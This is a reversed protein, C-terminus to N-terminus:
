GLSKGYIRYRKVPAGAAKTALSIMPRNTELVWSFEIWDIDYNNMEDLFDSVLLALIGIAILPNRHKKRIGMLPIRISGFSERWLRFALKLWNFPLLRGGFERSLSNIDPMALMLAAPEGDVTVIRGYSARYFPKLEKILATIEAESFPVFGWNESWADNFIDMILRVEDEFRSTDIKRIALGSASRAYAALQGIEAGVSRPSMRFALTDIVKVLGARALLGGMYPRAHNMLIAAPSDFGDVLLGCEENASLSYPGEMRDAGRVELWAAAADVLAGAAEADDICDFFGFHGTASNYHQQYRRNVQASIRGIPRRDRYAVFFAAEGFTFFPNHRPSIRQREQFLLPPIWAPDGAYVEYPVRFWDKRPAGDDIVAISLPEASPIM